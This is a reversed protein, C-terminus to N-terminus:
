PVYREAPKASAQTNRAATRTLDTHSAGNGLSVRQKLMLSGHCDRHALSVRFGLDLAPYVRPGQPGAPGRGRDDRAPRATPMRTHRHSKVMGIRAGCRSPAQPSTDVTPYTNAGDRDGQERRRDHVARSEVGRGCNNKLQITPSPVTMATTNGNLLV